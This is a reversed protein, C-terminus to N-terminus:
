ADRRGFLIRKATYSLGNDQLCRFANGIKELPSVILARRLDAAERETLQGYLRDVPEGLRRVIDCIHWKFRQSRGTLARRISCPLQQGSSLTECTFLWCELYGKLNAISLPKTITTDRHVHRVYLRWPRHAVRRAALFTRLMFINDEYIIGEPFSLGEAVLMDRRLMALPPSATWDNHRCMDALMRGGTRPASYDRRRIYSEARVQRAFLECGDDFCTEADFLALDLSLAEMMGVVRELADPVALEDDADMFYIYEGESITLGRNRAAGQGCNAQSLVRVRPDHAAYEALVAASGDTSGDNVCVIEIDRRTQGLASDLCAGLWPEANFVPVIVSVKPM